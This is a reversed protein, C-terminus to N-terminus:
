MICVLMANQPIYEIYLMLLYLYLRKKNTIYEIFPLCQEPFSEHPESKDFGLNPAPNNADSNEPSCPSMNGCIKEVPYAFSICVVVYVVSLVMQTTNMERPLLPM